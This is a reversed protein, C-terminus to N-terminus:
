FGVSERHTKASTEEEVRFVKPARIRGVPLIEVQNLEEVSPPARPLASGVDRHQLLECFKVVASSLFSSSSSSSLSLSGAPGGERGGVSSTAQPAYLYDPARQIEVAGERLLAGEVRREEYVGLSLCTCLRSTWPFSLGRRGTNGSRGDTCVDKGTHRDLYFSRWQVLVILSGEGCPLCDSTQM